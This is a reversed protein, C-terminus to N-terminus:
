VVRLSWYGTLAASGREDVTAPSRRPLCLDAQRAM